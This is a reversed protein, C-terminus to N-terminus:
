PNEEPPLAYDAAYYTEGPEHRMAPAAHGASAESQSASPSSADSVSEYTTSKLGGAGDSSVSPEEGAFKGASASAATAGSQRKVMIFNPHELISASVGEAMM